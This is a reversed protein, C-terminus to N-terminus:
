RAPTLSSLVADMTETYHVGSQTILASEQERLLIGKAASVWFDIPSTGQEIGNFALDLRVHIAPVSQGAITMPQDSLVQGTLAVNEASGSQHCVASWHAGPLPIPPLLYATAPCDITTTTDTDSIQEHTVLATVAMSHHAVPCVTTLESHQAIPVWDMTSCGHAPPDVVVQTDAPFNRNAGPLSLAEGGKTRYSFVGPTLLPAAHDVATLAPQAPQGNRYLRLADRLSVPTAVTRFFVAWCTGGATGIVVITLFLLSLWRHHQVYSWGFM